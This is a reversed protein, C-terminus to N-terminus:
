LRARVESGAYDVINNIFFGFVLKFSYIAYLSCKIEGLIVYILVKNFVRPTKHNQHVKQPTFIRFM